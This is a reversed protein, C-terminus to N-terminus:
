AAERRARFEALLRAYQERLRRNEVIAAHWGALAIALLDRYVLDDAPADIVDPVRVSM